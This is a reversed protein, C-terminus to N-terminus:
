VRQRVNKIADVTWLDFSSSIPSPRQERFIQQRDWGTNSGSPCKLYVCVIEQAKREVYLLGNITFRITGQYCCKSAAWPSCHRQLRFTILYGRGVQKVDGPVGTVGSDVPHRARWLQLSLAPRELAWVPIQMWMLHKLLRQHCQWSDLPM